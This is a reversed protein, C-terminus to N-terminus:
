ARRVADLFASILAADKLGAGREVGSSVDVMPAGSASIAEAVNWPDLGGALFWPRAFRREKLMTWDFRAGMGGPLASGEPTKADFMLHETIPEYQAAQDLDSASSVSIV